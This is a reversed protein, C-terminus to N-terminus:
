SRARRNGPPHTKEIAEKAYMRRATAAPISSAARQGITRLVPRCQAPDGGQAAVTWVKEGCGDVGMGLRWWVWGDVGKWVCTPAPRLGM